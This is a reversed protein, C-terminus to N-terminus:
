KVPVKAMDGSPAECTSPDCARYCLGSQPDHEDESHGCYCRKGGMAENADPTPVYDGIPGATFATPSLELSLGEVQLALIHNAAMMKAVDAIRSLRGKRKLDDEVDREYDALPGRAGTAGMMPEGPFM